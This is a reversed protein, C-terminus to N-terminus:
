LWPSGYMRKSRACEGVLQPNKGLLLAYLWGCKWSCFQNSIRRCWLFRGMSFLAEHLQEIIESELSGPEPIRVRGLYPNQDAELGFPYPGRGQVDDPAKERLVGEIEEHTGDMVSVRDRNIEVPRCVFLSPFLCASRVLPEELVVEIGLILHKLCKLWRYNPVEIEYSKQAVLGVGLEFVELADPLLYLAIQFVNSRIAADQFQIRRSQPFAQSLRIWAQGDALNTVGGKSTM